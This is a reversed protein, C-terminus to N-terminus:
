SKVISFSDCIRTEKLIKQTNESIFLFGVTAFDSKRRAANWMLLMWTWAYIKVKDIKSVKYLHTIHAFVGGWLEM